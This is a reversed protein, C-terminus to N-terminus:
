AGVSGRGDGARIDGLRVLAYVVAGLFGTLFTIVIWIGSGSNRKRIDQYVWIGLLLHIIGCIVAFIMGCKKHAGVCGSGRSQSQMAQGKAVCPPEQNWAPPAMRDGMAPMPPRQMMDMRPGQDQRMQRRGLWGGRANGNGGRADNRERMECNACSPQDRDDDQDNDQSWGALPVLSVAAALFWAYKKM